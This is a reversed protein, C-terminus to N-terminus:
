VYWDFPVIAFGHQALAFFPVTLTWKPVKAARRRAVCEGVSVLVPEGKQMFYMLIDSLGSQADGAWFKAIIKLENWTIFRPRGCVDREMRMWNIRNSHIRKDRDRREVDIWSLRFTVGLCHTKNRVSRTVQIPSGDCSTCSWQRGHFHCLRGTDAQGSDTHKPEHPM